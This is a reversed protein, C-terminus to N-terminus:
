NNNSETSSCTQEKITFHMNSAKNSPCNLSIENIRKYKNAYEPKLVLCDLNLPKRKDDDKDSLFLEKLLSSKTITEKGKKINIKRKRTEHLLKNENETDNDHVKDNTGDKWCKFVDSKKNTVLNETIKDTTENTSYGSDQLIDIKLREETSTIKTLDKNKDNYIRKSWRQGITERHNNSM